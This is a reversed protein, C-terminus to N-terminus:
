SVIIVAKCIRNETCQNICPWMEDQNFGGNLTNLLFCKLNFDSENVSILISNFPALLLHQFCKWLDM